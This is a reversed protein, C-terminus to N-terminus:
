QNKKHQEGQINVSYIEANKDGYNLSYNLKFIFCFRLKSHLIVFNNALEDTVTLKVSLCDFNFLNAPNNIVRQTYFSDCLMNQYSFPRFTAYRLKSPYLFCTTTYQKSKWSMDHIRSIFVSWGPNLNRIIFQLPYVGYSITILDPSYDFALSIALIPHFNLVNGSQPKPIQLTSQLPSAVTFRESTGWTNTGRAM